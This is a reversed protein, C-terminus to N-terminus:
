AYSIESGAHRFHGEASTSDAGVERICRRLFSTFDAEQGREWEQWRSKIYRKLQAFFEEIPNFDPSYPPLYILIVGADRCLAKVTESRHISANDMILVSKPSPFRGCVPLLERLFDEFVRADTSGQFVKSFIIGDQAYAPLIQYREGRQFHAVQVPPAGRPSWGTRRFGVRKDCGSEDVYVLHYSSFESLRRLYFDRLDPNREQAVRRTLKRTWGISVLARRVAHKSFTGGFESGLYAAMENQYLTPEELLKNCLASLMPPTITSPRGGGNPPAKTAHFHRMNARTRRVARRSCGVQEAIDDDHLASYRIMGDLQEHQSTSLNPAM